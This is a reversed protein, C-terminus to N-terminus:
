VNKESKLIESLAKLTYLVIRQQKQNLGAMYDSGEVSTEIDLLFDASVDLIDAINVIDMVKMPTHGNEWRSITIACCGLKEALAEQSYGANERMWALREGIRLLNTM